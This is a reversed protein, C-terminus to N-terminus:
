SSRSAEGAAANADQLGLADFSALLRKAARLDATDSGEVFREFVPQLLARASESRGQAAMLAALDVATRLEWARAAQRHSWELSRHFCMEADEASPQPMSLLLGGKVRLLEPIYLVDGGEAEVLRITEDILTIGEAFRGTALLGQVLAINFATTLLEYRVAHLEQLSAQLTAVGGKADGRRIALEGKFGRGIALYPGLSHSAAHSILRDVHEEASAFDGDWLFVSVAWILAISLTVPHDMAIANKVTQRTREVADTPHGQLWLTRALLTGALNYHDFGPNITSTRHSGPAHELASELELRAGRLDGILHLAGGLLSQALALAAPGEITRAVTSSRMAYRSATKFDGARLHFMHLMALLRVQNLDDSREEAIVLSRNLAARAAERQGHALMLSMGLAALLHMEESGSRTADDLALIARESWRHCETVLSMALFASAAAAALGIGIQMNGNIGFCWELAARVNNIDLGYAALWEAAPRTESEGASCQFLRRYYEAHRRAVADQGGNEALRDLAYARITELLRWRTPSASVDLTVLSKAVLSAIGELISSATEGESVIATAAELTFGGLFIALHRLLRREPEPLLEYSWDLTARLTQHRRVAPRRGATLLRFRDDLGSAVQQVGLTAARAAAFEIALPIGDLRRCVAAIASLSEDHPSFDLRLAQARAVFLQAAGHALVLDSGDQHPPPVNLPTVGYICEGAIRLVERSTALVSTAPCLRVVTEALSAAADIVHECNDLVLLLKREGIARAVTGPLIEGGWLKLGLARAVTSPVLDPDSLSALEVLWVDGNFAPLMRRAAELALTTKGIGGPGTLTVARRETLLDQVQQVAADLGVLESTPAPLNTLPFRDSRRELLAAGLGSPTKEPAAPGIIDAVFRYGRGSITKIFDRDRGLAKRLTSIQFQLNHEQVVTGSWVSRLLEDKTVLRGGAEVLAILIDFARSGILVPLGDALLERRHANLRFRGFEVM